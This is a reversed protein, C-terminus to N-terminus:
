RRTVLFQPLRGSLYEPLRSHQRGPWRLLREMTMRVLAFRLDPVPSGLGAPQIEKFCRGGRSVPGPDRLRTRIVISPRSSNVLWV